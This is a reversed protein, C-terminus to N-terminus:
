RVYEYRRISERACSESGTASLFVRRPRQKRKKKEKKRKVRRTAAARAFITLDNRACPLFDVTTEIRMRSVNKYIARFHIEFTYFFAPSARDGRVASAGGGGGRAVRSSFVGGNYLCGRSISPDSDVNECRCRKWPVRIKKKKGKESEDDCAPSMEWKGREGEWSVCCYVSRSKCLM